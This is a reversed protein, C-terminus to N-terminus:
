EQEVKLRLFLRSSEGISVDEASRYTETQTGDPNEHSMAHILNAPNQEWAMLDTSSEIIFRVGNISPDRQFEFVLFNQRVGDVILQSLSAAPHFSSSPDTLDSGTAYEFLDALGDGDTDQLPDGSFPERGIGPAGPTGGITLSLMWSSAEAPNSNSLTQFVLSQGTGDAGPLWPADDEYRFETIMSGDAAQIAITEGGNNLRGRYPGLIQHAPVKPYRMMFDRKNAVVLISNGPSLLRASESTFAFDYDVGNVIRVNSLNVSQDSINRLELYEFKEADVINMAIEEDTPPAPHYMIESVVLNESSAPPADFFFTSSNLASWRNNSNLRAKITTPASIHVPDSYKIARNSIIGGPLRPDSGDLTYFIDGDVFQLIRNEHAYPEMTLNLSTAESDSDRSFVPPRYVLRGSRMTQDDLWEMRTAIWDKMYDVEEQWSQIRTSAAPNPWDRRGLRPWKRFHRAIPNQMEIPERNGVPETEGDLLTAVHRDITAMMRDTSMLSRRMEWYRDWHAAKYEPDTHLRPFWLQGVGNSTDYLWGTSRDGTAYDANGLSINFDWLPGARLRGGRDKHFYTSFVYGDVQKSIELLWQADIFTDPDLYAQYGIAPNRSDRGNLAREMDNVYDRIYRAQPANLRDPDFSQLPINFRSTTWNSKMTDTKDKRIIYGGTILEPDVTKDNLNELPVRNKDRKIKEMLMYIGRYSTYGIQTATRSQNFFLEIFRTRVSMGDNGRLALMWDYVLKNRMLTKESWPGYLAWDSESPMGLLSANQDNGSEDWLELAYSKQQFGASSEGRVHVGASGSYEAPTKLTARGSIPDPPIVVAFSNRFPRSGGTSGDVNFGFSDVIVLPLNSDFVKGTGAFDSLSSDMHLFTRSSIHSAIRGPAYTRARVTMSRSIPIPNQFVPSSIGPETRDLTYHIAAGPVTPASLTLAVQEDILGGVHSFEVEDLLTESSPEQTNVEGPSAPYMYGQNREPGKEGFAINKDQRGYEYSSAITKGDPEVLAVFGESKALKFNAHMLSAASLQRDRGSAFVVQYNYPTLQLTEIKWKSLNDKSDTLFWGSLDALTGSGNFLEIWCPKDAFEDEFESNDAVFESIIPGGTEIAPLAETSVSVNDILVDMTIETTRASFALTDGVGPAFGPTPLDACVRRRNYTIDLGESDWNILVIRSALGYAFSTPFNGISIGGVFIEISPPDDGEDHADFAITLGGPLPAFGGEGTGNDEPINGFNVSCGEGVTGDTARDLILSFRLDLSKIASDPDIDPLKFSGVSGPVSLDVLRLASGYVGAVPSNGTGGAQESGIVSGDGLDTTADTFDFTQFTENSPYTGAVLFPVSTFYLFYTIIGILFRAPRILM